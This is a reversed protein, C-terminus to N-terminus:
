QARARLRAAAQPFVSYAKILEEDKAEEAKKHMELLKDAAANDGKPSLVELASLTTIRVSANTIKPLAGLLEAKTAEDGLMGVMIASKIGTFQGKKEQSAPDSIKAVYCKVDEKCNKLLEKAQNFESEYSKGITTPKNDPGM